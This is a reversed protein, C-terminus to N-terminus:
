LALRLSIERLLAMRLPIDHVHEFIESASVDTFDKGLKKALETAPPPYSHVFLRSITAKAEPDTSAKLNQRATQKESLSKRPDRLIAIWQTVLPLAPASAEPPHQTHTSYRTSVSAMLAERTAAFFRHSGLYLNWCGDAFKPSVERGEVFFQM